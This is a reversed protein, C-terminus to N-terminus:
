NRKIKGKYPISLSSGGRCNTVANKIEEWRMLLRSAMVTLKHNSWSPALLCVILDSQKWAEREHPRSYIHIDHTIIVWGGQDALTTIWESDKTDQPFREKLHVAKDGEVSVLNDIARAIKISLTNDFFFNM